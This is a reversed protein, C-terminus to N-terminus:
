KYSTKNKKSKSAQRNRFPLARFLEDQYNYETNSELYLPLTYLFSNLTASYECTQTEEVQV